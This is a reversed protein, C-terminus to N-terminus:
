PEILLREAEPGKETLYIIVLYFNDWKVRASRNIGFLPIPADELYLDAISEDIIIADRDEEYDFEFKFSESGNQDIKLVDDLSMLTLTEDKLM